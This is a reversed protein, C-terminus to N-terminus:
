RRPQKLCEPKVNSFVVEEAMHESISKVHSYTPPSEGTEKWIIYSVMVFFSVGTTVIVMLFISLLDEDKM